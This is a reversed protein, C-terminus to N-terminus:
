PVIESKFPTVSKGGNRDQDSWKEVAVAQCRSEMGRQHNQVQRGPDLDRNGSRPDM